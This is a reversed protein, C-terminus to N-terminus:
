LNEPDLRRTKKKRHEKLAEDAFKGLVDESDTLAAEWRQESVLEGLLWKAFVNQGVEPLKSVKTFAQQLLHTM